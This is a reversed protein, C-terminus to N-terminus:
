SYLSPIFNDDEIDFLYEDPPIIPEPTKYSRNINEFDLVKFPEKITSGFNNNGGLNDFDLKKPTLVESCKMDSTHIHSKSYKQQQSNSSSPTPKNEDNIQKCKEESREFLKKKVKTLHIDSSYEQGDARTPKVIPTTSFEISSSSRIAKNREKVKRKKRDGLNKLTSNGHGLRKADMEKQNDFDFVLQQVKENLDVKIVNAISLDDNEAFDHKSYGGFEDKAPRVFDIDDTSAKKKRDWGWKYVQSKSLGSKAVAKDVTEKDWRPNKNFIDILIKIQGSNKRKRKNEM